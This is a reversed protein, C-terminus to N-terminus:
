ALARIPIHDILGHVYIGDLPLAVDCTWVYFGFLVCFTYEKFLEATTHRTPYCKHQTRYVGDSTVTLLWLTTSFAIKRKKM